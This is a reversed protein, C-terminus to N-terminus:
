FLRNSKDKIRNYTYDFSWEGVEKATKINFYEKLIEINAIDRSYQIMTEDKYFKSRTDNVVYYMYDLINNYSKSNVDIGDKTSYIPLQKINACEIIVEGVFKEYSCGKIIIKKRWLTTDTKDREIVVRGNIIIDWGNSQSKVNNYLVIKVDMGDIVKTPTDAVKNGEVFMPEVEKDNVIIKFGANLKFRYKIAIEDLLMNIFTISSFNREIDNYLNKINMILGQPLKDDYNVKDVNIDWNNREGWKDVDIFVKSSYDKRNSLIEINKGFKLFARKLGIGHGKTYELSSGIKFADGLVRDKPIGGCNDIIIFESENIKITVYYGHLRKPNTLAEAANISNDILDFIAAQVRIDKTITTIIFEKTPAADVKKLSM